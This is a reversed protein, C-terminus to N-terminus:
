PLLLLEVVELEKDKEFKLSREASERSSYAPTFEGQSWYSREYLLRETSAMDNSGTRVKKTIVYAKNM